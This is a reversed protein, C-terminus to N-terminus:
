SVLLFQIPYTLMTVQVIELILPSSTCSNLSPGGQILKRVPSRSVVQRLTRYNHTLMKIVKLVKRASKTRAVKGQKSANLMVPSVELFKPNLNVKATHIAPITFRALMLLKARNRLLSPKHLRAAENVKCQFHTKRSFVNNSRTKTMDPDSLSLVPAYMPIYLWLCAGTSICSKTTVPPYNSHRNPSILLKKSTFTPQTTTLINQPWQPEAWSLKLPPQMFHLM